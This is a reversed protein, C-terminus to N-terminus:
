RFLSSIIRFLQSIVAFSFRFLPSMHIGHIFLRSIGRFLRVRFLAFYSRREIKSHNGGRNATTAVARWARRAASGPRVPMPMASGSSSLFTLPARRSVVRCEAHQTAGRALKRAIITAGRLLRCDTGQETMIIIMIIMIIM